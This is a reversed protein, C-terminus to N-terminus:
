RRTTETSSRQARLDRTLQRRLEGREQANLHRMNEDAALDAPTQRPGAPTVVVQRVASRLEQKRLQQQPETQALTSSCALAAVLGWAKASLSKPRVAPRLRVPRLFLINTLMSQM